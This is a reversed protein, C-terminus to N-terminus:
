TAKYNCFSLISHPLKLSFSERSEPSTTFIVVLRHGPSRRRSAAEAPPDAVAVASRRAESRFRPTSRMLM